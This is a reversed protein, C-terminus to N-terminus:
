SLAPILAEGLAFHAVLQVFVFLLVFGLVGGVARGLPRAGTFSARALLRLLGHGFHFGLASAGVVYVGLALPDGLRHWLRAYPERVSTHAGADGPWLQIVHYTVFALILAGTLLQFTMGPDRPVGSTRHRLYSRVGLMGHLALAILVGIALGRGLPRGLAHDVWTGNAALAPYNQIAHSFAYGGLVLGLTTHIVGTWGRATRTTDGSM